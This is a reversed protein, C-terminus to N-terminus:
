FLSGEWGKSELETHASMISSPQFYNGAISENMMGMEELLIIGLLGIISNQTDHDVMIWIHVESLGIYIFLCFYFYIFLYVVCMARSFPRKHHTKGDLCPSKEMTIYINVLHYGM